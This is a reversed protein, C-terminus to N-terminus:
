RLDLSVAINGLQPCYCSSRTSIFLTRLTAVELTVKTCHIGRINNTIFKEKRLSTVLTATTIQEMAAVLVFCVFNQTGNTAIADNVVTVSVVKTDTPKAKHFRTACEPKLSFRM